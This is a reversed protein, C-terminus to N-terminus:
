FSFAKPHIFCVPPIRFVLSRPRQFTTVQYRDVAGPYGAAYQVEASAGNVIVEIPSNAVSLPDAGFPQGPEPAPRTPRLGSAFLVVVEGARAPKAATVLSYDSAHAIAPGGGTTVIEPTIMPLVYIGQRISGAAFMRRNAPDEAMSASRLPIVSGGAPAGM